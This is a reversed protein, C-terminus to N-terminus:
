RRVVAPANRGLAHAASREDGRATRSRFARDVLTALVFAVLIAM